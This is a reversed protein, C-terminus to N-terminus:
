RPLLVRAGGSMTCRALVRSLDPPRERNGPLPPRGRRRDPRGPLPSGVRPAGTRAAGSCKEPGSAWSRVGLAGQSVLQPLPLLQLLPPISPDPASGPRSAARDAFGPTSRSISAHSGASSSGHRSRSWGAGSAHRGRERCVTSGPALRIRYRGEGDTTTKGVVHGGSAFVLTVVPAPETCPQEAVCVPGIPGRTVIGRLGSPAM